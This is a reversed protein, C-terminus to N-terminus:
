YAFLSFKFMYTVLRLLPETKTDFSKGFILMHEIKSYM